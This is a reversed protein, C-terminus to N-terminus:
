LQVDCKTMFFDILIKCETQLVLETNCEWKIWVQFTGYPRSSFQKNTWLPDFFPLTPRDPNKNRKKIETKKSKVSMQVILFVCYSFLWTLDTFLLLVVRFKKINLMQVNLLGIPLIKTYKYSNKGITHKNKNKKGLYFFFFFDAPRAFKTPDTPRPCVFLEKKLGLPLEVSVLLYAVIVLAYLITRSGFTEGWLCIIFSSSTLFHM